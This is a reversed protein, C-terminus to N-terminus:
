ETVFYLNGNTDLELTPAAGDATSVWLGGDKDVSLTFFGNAPATVGSEGTDGKEGKEGQIGQVGQEGRVGQEGQIGQDGKVGQLGTEGREGKLDAATTGSASTVSLVTGQWEHVVSVGDKGAPLAIDTKGLKAMGTKSPEFSVQMTNEDLQQVAPMYYGTEIAALLEKKWKALVDAYEKEVVDINYINKGVPISDFTETFKQYLIAGDTKVCAFRVCFALSGDLETADGSILWSFQVTEGDASIEFDEASDFSSKTTTERTSKDYKYNNYHVEVINCLSMDHGAVYRPVTFIYRDAEHDGQKLPDIDALATIAMTDPDIQFHTGGGIVEHEHM